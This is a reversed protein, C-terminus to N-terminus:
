KLTRAVHQFIKNKCRFHNFLSWLFPNEIGEGGFLLVFIILAPSETNNQISEIGKLIADRADDTSCFFRDFIDYIYDFFHEQQQNSKQELEHQLSCCLYFVAQSKGAIHTEIFEVADSYDDYHAIEQSLM